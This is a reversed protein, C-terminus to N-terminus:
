RDVKETSPQNADEPSFFFERFPGSIRAIMIAAVIAAAAVSAGFRSWSAVPLLWAVLGFFPLPLLYTFLLDRLLPWFQSGCIKYVRWAM